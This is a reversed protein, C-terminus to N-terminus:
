YGRMIQFYRERLLRLYLHNEIGYNGIAWMDNFEVIENHHDGVPDELIAVDATYAVPFDKFNKLRAEMLGWDPNVRFDGAYNKADLVKGDQVYLRWESLIPYKFPIYVLVETDEPYPHLTSIFMKDFVCGTFLKIQKPKIFLEEGEMIREIAQGLYMKESVRDSNLPVRPSKGVRSFVEGMFEVSGVFLRTRILSDFKGEQVEEFSTLRYDLGREIAGYMACAVDFHHPLTKEKNSQIYIM